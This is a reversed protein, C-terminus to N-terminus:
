KCTIDLIELRIYKQRHGTTRRYRKRRKMKFIKVKDGRIESVVKAKVLANEVIPKGIKVEKDSFLLVDKIELETGAETKFFPVDIIKGKEVKYQMGGQRIVSYM